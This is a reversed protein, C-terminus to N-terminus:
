FLPIMPRLLMWPKLCLKLKQRGEERARRDSFILIPYNGAEALAVCQQIIEKLRKEMDAGTTGEFTTDIERYAVEGNERIAKMKPLNLIPSSCVLEPSAQYTNPDNIDTQKPSCGLFTKLVFDAGERLPDIPPNTVVAVVQSFHAAMRLRGPSMVALPRDDGMGYIPEKGNLAMNDLVEAVHQDGGVQNWLKIVDSKSLLEVNEDPLEARRSIDILRSDGVMVLRDDRTIIKEMEDPLVLKGKRVSAINGGKLRHVFKLKDLPIPPSGPLSSGVTVDDDGYIWFTRLSLPDMTVWVRSATMGCIAEPGQKAAMAGQTREILEFHKRTEEDYRYLDSRAPTGRRRMAVPGSIDSTSILSKLMGNFHSSDSRKPDVTVCEEGELTLGLRVELDRQAGSLARDTNIEGNHWILGFPQANEPDPETNTSMRGHFGVQSSVFDPHCFDGGYVRILQDPTARAKYVITDPQLSAPYVGKLEREIRQQVRFLAERFKQKGMGDGRSYLLQWCEPQKGRIHAPLVDYTTPVDRWGHVVIGHEFLMRKIRKRMEKGGGDLQRDLFFMGVALDTDQEVHRDKPLFQEYFKRAGATEMIIGAGDGADFASGSRERMGCLGDLAMTVAERTANKTVVFGIGCADHEQRVNRWFPSESFKESDRNFVLRNEAFFLFM